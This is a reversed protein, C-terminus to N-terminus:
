IIHGNKCFTQISLSSSSQTGRPGDPHGLPLFFSVNKGTDIYGVAEIATIM